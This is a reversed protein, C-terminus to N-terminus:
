KVKVKMMRNSYITCGCMFNWKKTDHYKSDYVQFLVTLTALVKQFVPFTNRELKASKFIRKQLM